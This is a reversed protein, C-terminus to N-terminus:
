RLHKKIVSPLNKNPLAREICTMMDFLFYESIQPSPFGTNLLQGRIWVSVPVARGKQSSAPCPDTPYFKFANKCNFM